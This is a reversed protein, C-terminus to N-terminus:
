CAKNPNETCEHHLPLTITFVTGKGEKSEMSFSGGPHEEVIKKSIGLGLGTGYKKTTFFPSFVKEKNKEPIGKGEDAVTIEVRDGSLRTRISITGGKEMAEISNKVLNLFVQKLRASDGAILLAREDINLMIQINKEKCGEKELSCIEQLVEKINVAELAITNPVHFERLDTLLKELRKVEETIIKLKRLSEKNNVAKTLQLAFGGILMLPNKIEHTIEAALKGLAALRESRMIEEQLAKTETMDRLIGTFFLKGNVETVSFSISVPFTDGNKRTAIIRTEHGIRSPIKTKVYQAVAKRHNKSCSSSMIVDLDHGVVEERSYGFIEEAARNFFLVKHNQDIIVFAENTNEVAHKLILLVQKEDEAIFNTGMGTGSM